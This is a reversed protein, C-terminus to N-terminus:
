ERSGTCETPVTAASLYGSAGFRSPDPHVVTWGDPIPDGPAWGEPMWPFSPDHFSTGDPRVAKYRVTTM